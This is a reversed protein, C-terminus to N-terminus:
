RRVMRGVTGALAGREQVYGEAVAERGASAIHWSGESPSIWGQQRMDHALDHDLMCSPRGDGMDILHGMERATPLRTRFTLESVLTIL